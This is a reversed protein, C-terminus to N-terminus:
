TSLKSKVMDSVISGDANNGVDAIVAKMVRGIENINTAGIEKIHKDVVLEIEERSLQVPAYKKLINLEQEEQKVRDNAGAEKYKSISENIKKMEKLVIRQIEKDDLDEDKKGIEIEYKKIESILMRLVGLAEKDGSKLCEKMDDYIDKKSFM